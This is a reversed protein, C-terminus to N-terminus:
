KGAPRNKRSAHGRSRRRAQSAKSKYFSLMDEDAEYVLASERRLMNGYLYFCVSDLTVSTRNMYVLRQTVQLSSIFLAVGAVLLVMAIWERIHKGAKM